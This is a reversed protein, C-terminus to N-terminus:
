TGDIAENAQIASEVLATCRIRGGASEEPGGDVTLRVAVGVETIEPEAAVKVQDDVM